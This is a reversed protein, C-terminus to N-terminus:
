WVRITQTAHSLFDLTFRNGSGPEGCMAKAADMSLGSEQLVGRSDIIKWM